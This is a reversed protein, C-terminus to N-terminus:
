FNAIKIVRFNINKLYYDHAKNVPNICDSYNREYLLKWIHM